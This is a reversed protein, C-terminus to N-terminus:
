PMAVAFPALRSLLIDPHRRILKTGAHLAALEATVTALLTATSRIHTVWVTRASSCLSLATSIQLNDELVGSAHYTAHIKHVVLLTDHEQSLSAYSLGAKRLLDHRSREAMDIYRGHNIVGAADTDPYSVHYNLVCAGNSPASLAMPQTM